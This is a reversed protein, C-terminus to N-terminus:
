DSRESRLQRQGVSAGLVGMGEGGGRSSKLM